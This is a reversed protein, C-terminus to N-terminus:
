TSRIRIRAGRDIGLILYRLADMGHDDEKFPKDKGEMWHYLEFEEILRKCRKAVKLRGTRIRANVAELGLSVDNNGPVVKCNMSRLTMREQKGSPDCFYRMDRLEPALDAILERAKWVYDHIWLVDDKDLYGKLAVFPNNYGFDIGGERRGTKSKAVKDAIENEVIHDQCFDPYILGEMKRFQGRYRMEFLTEGLAERAREFEAQPYYPNDMSAYQVVDYLPDGDLWRKYFEHYLWNIAYPTTTILARGQKLGLRAQIVVWVQYKMQGAEDLWAARYQGAELTEPRDASGLWIRGGTPLEYVSKSQMWDGELHTGRFFDIFTPATARVLMKYTPAVVFFQDTPYREVERALWPAGMYTKGGGTGAILAVFRAASAM